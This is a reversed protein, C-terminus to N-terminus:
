SITRIRSAAPYRKAFDSIAAADQGINESKRKSGPAPQAALIAKYAALPAESLGESSIGLVKFAEQYVQVASDCAIALEGVYPRVDKEAERTERQQKRLNETATKVAADTALKIAKDMAKEKEKEKEKEEDEAKKKAEEDAAAKKKKEEDDEDDEDAAPPDTKTKPTKTEPVETEADEAIADLLQTADSITSARKDKVKPDKAIQADIAITIGSLIATKKEKINEATVDDVLPGLVKKADQALAPFLAAILAGKAMAATRSILKPMDFAGKLKIAADGVVVDPGARGREVLAVHNGIIDRMVGDYAEGNISGPTMDARYRYASSLEKQDESEILNISDQTWVVLSNKLYPHVFIADTGTSGCVNDTAPSEASVPVHQDLLPLNNFTPAAKALENPDRYLKYVRYPELGMEEAGPIEYGYYPCVNAKSINTIEVHMRGDVDYTRVTRRDFALSDIVHEDRGLVKKFKDLQAKAAELEKSRQDVLKKASDVDARSSGRNLQRSHFEFFEKADRLRLEAAKLEQELKYGLTGPGGSVSADEAHEPEAEEENLWEILAERMCSWDEESMDHAAKGVFKEAVSKPIGLTSHGELAAYMAKRQPESVAPM